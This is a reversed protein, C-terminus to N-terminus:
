PGPGPPTDGAGALMDSLVSAALARTVPRGTALAAHDLRRVAAQMARATRPLRRLLWEVVPQAVVIQREALLRLLLVRLLGDGPQGVAVAMTARLRSALDPLIVPWRAPPTRAGLLVAMGQERASNLLHLLAHEDGCMDAGDLAMAMPPRRGGRAAFLAAVHAHTLSGGHLLLAEHRRAWIDLMHTKGTGAPGWLALRREPWPTPGLLWSRAAANSASFVFDSAAFRPTHAFPLVLQGIAGAVTNEDTKLKTRGDVAKHTAGGHRLSLRFDTQGRNWIATKM